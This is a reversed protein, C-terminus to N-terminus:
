SQSYELSDYADQLINSLTDMIYDTFVRHQIHLGVPNNHKITSLYRQTQPGM